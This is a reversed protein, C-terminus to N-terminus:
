VASTRHDYDDCTQRIFFAVLKVILLLWLDATLDFHRFDFLWSM